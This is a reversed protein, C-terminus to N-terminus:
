PVNALSSPSPSSGISPVNVTCADHRLDADVWVLAATLFAHLQVSFLQWEHVLPARILDMTVVRYELVQVRVVGTLGGLALLHCADELVLM